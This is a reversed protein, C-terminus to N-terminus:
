LSRCFLVLFWVSGYKRLTSCRWRGIKEFGKMEPSEDPIEWVFRMGEPMSQMWPLNLFRELFVASQAYPPDAFMIDPVVPLDRVSFVNGRIVEFRTKVGAKVLKAINKEIMAVHVPNEEYFLVHSAGRSAAELGLAGSGAFFDCLVRDKWPGLSDFMAKRACVSTPRVGIKPVDLTLGHAIGGVIQM